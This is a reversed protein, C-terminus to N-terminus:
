QRPAVTVEPAPSRYLLQYANYSRLVRKVYGRTESIPIEEVWEDLELQPRERRWRSVAGGGANYGALALEYTGEFRKVLDSLYASGIRINIEPDLIRATTLKAIKLRRAVGKATYPMLQTLGLAGAWSLANPDLASEERMLAQLLDPDVGTDRCHREILDRFARPYALEWVGRTEATIRGSLERRLTSRALAHASRQDGALDLLTVLLRLADPPARTRDAALLETSVAEAFGLRLLEVGALFHPDEALPGAELPWSRGSIPSELRATVEAARAPDSASLRRRAILGYYTAPHETALAHLIEGAREKEGASEHMRARWYRARELEYTEPHRAFAREIRDLLAVAEKTEARKRRLWFSKFTAEGVFDGDPYREPIEALLELAREVGGNQVYMDAAYFLADDAFSHGPYDRALTEYSGAGRSLAIISQSSGLVYLARPRLEPDQCKEVVPELFAAARTHAREKRYGKGLIFRARCALPDPLTLRKLLPELLEIGGRNRHAEVLATARDVISALPMKKPDLRAEALKAEKALPHRAWLAQLADMEAAPRRRARELEAVAWLAEAAVDRGWAPPPTASLPAVAEVAEDPRGASRLVRFLALRADAYLRSDRPVKSLLEAAHEWNELQAYATGAHTLCRDRMPAYATALASMEEAAAAYEEARLAALARLYRVPATGEATELLKRAEAYAGRDFAAKAEALRGEAFYPAVDKSDYVRGRPPEEPLPVEPLPFAPNRILVLGPAPPTKEADPPPMLAAEPPANDPRSQPAARVESGQGPAGPAALAFLALVPFLRRVAAPPMRM